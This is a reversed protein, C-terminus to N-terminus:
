QLDNIDGTCLGVNHEFDDVTGSFGCGRCACASDHDWGIDTVEDTGDDHVVAMAYVSISYPGESSCKPCKMGSLCNENAM